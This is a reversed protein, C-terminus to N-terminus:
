KLWGVIDIPYDEGDVFETYVLELDTGDRNDVYVEVRDSLFISFALKSGSEHWTVDFAYDSFIETLEFDGSMEMVYFHKDDFGYDSNWVETSMALYKSDPSWYLRGYPPSSVDQSYVVQSSLNGLDGANIQVLYLQNNESTFYVLSKGDPAWTPYSHAHGIMEVSFFSGSDSDFVTWNWDNESKPYFLVAKSLDPLVCRVCSSMNYISDPNDIRVTKELSFEGAPLDIKYLFVDYYPTEYGDGQKLLKLYLQGNTKWFLEVDTLNINNWDWLSDPVEFSSPNEIDQYDFVFVKASVFQYTQEDFEYTFYAFRMGDPSVASSLYPYVEDEVPHEAIEGKPSIVAFTSETGSFTQSFLLLRDRDSVGCSTLILTVFILLVLRTKM